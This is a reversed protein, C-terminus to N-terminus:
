RRRNKRRKRYSKRMERMKKIQKSLIEDFAAQTVVKGKGPPMIKKVPQNTVTIEKALFLDRDMHLELILGPLGGYLEPGSGVPIQPTFWAIIEKAVTEGKRNTINKHGIAKIALYKGIQKSEKTIKWQYNPLKDKILYDEEFSNQQKVYSKAKMDVYVISKSSRFRSFSRRSNNKSPKELTEEKEFISTERNFFLNFTKNRNRRVSKMMQAWEPRAKLLSDMRKKSAETEVRKYQYVVHWQTQANILSYSFILLAIIYKKM